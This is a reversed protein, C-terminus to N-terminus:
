KPEVKCSGRTLFREMPEIDLTLVLTVWKSLTNSCPLFMLCASRTDEQPGKFNKLDKAKDMVDERLTKAPLVVLVPRSQNDNGRGLRKIETHEWENDSLQVGIAKMVTSVSDKDLRGLVDENEKMGLFVANKKREQADLSELCTM